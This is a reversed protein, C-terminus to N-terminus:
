GRLCMAAEGPFWEPPPNSAAICTYRDNSAYFGPDCTINVVSNIPSPLQTAIEPNVSGNGVSSFIPCVSFFFQM